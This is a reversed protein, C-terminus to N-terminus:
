KELGAQMAKAKNLGDRYALIGEALGEALAMRYGPSALNAAEAGNTCYGLEVLVAPMHAGILVHFPAAKVGNDKITFNRRKLRLVSFRQIDGALKRSEEVRANLMVDAMLRQMDGLRQGGAANELAAVRAAEANAAFDLYYTEFGSVSPYENANVHVSVFLDARTENAKRTRDRLSITKDAARSYVVELGNAELLRGLTQAVDLAVRRELVNHGGAGPDRGGHGPDIFVTGVTLGLQDAM